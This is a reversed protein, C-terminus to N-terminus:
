LAKILEILLEVDFTGTFLMSGIVLIIILHTSTMKLSSLDIELKFKM